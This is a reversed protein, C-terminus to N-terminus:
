IEGRQIRGVIAGDTDDLEPPKWSVSVLGQAQAVEIPLYGDSILLQFKDRWTDKHGTM